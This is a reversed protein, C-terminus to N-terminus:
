RPKIILEVRNNVLLADENENPVLPSNHGYGLVSMRSRAVGNMTLVDMVATAMQHSKRLDTLDEAINATHGILQIQVEPFAALVASIRELQELGAESINSASGEFKVDDLVYALEGGTHTGNLVHYIRIEAADPRSRITTGDSLKITETGGIRYSSGSNDTCAYRFVVISVAITCVLVVWPLVKSWPKAYYPDNNNGSAKM